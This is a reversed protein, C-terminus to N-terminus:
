FCKMDYKVRQCSVAKQWAPARLFNKSDFREADVKKHVFCFLCLCLSPFKSGNCHRQKKTNQRKAQLVTGSLRGGALWSSKAIHLRVANYFMTRLIICGHHIRFCIARVTALSGDHPKRHQRGLSGSDSGRLPSNLRLAALRRAFRVPFAAHWSITKSDDHREIKCILKRLAWRRARRVLLM